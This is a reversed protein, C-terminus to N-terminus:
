SSVPENSKRAKLKRQLERTMDKRMATFEHDLLKKLEAQENLGNRSVFGQFEDLDVRIHGYVLNDEASM